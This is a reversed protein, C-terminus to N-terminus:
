EKVIRDRAIVNEGNVIRCMYVGQPLSSIDVRANTSSIEQSLLLRGAVDHFEITTRGEPLSNLLINLEDNAPNPYVYIALPEADTSEESVATTSKSNMPADIDFDIDTEEDRCIGYFFCLVSNAYASSVGTNREVIVQLEAIEDETLQAYNRGDTYVAERLSQYQCFNDYEALEDATLAFRQPIMALEQRALAYEGMEFYSNVLSYKATTTNMRNYWGNLSECDFVITDQLIADINRNAIEAMTRRLSILTDQMLRATAVIDADGEDFNELLFDYGAADYDAFRSEYIQQLSEYLTIDDNSSSNNSNSMLLPLLTCLTSTCSNATINAVTTINSSTSAPYYLNTTLADGSHYYTVPNCYNSSIINYGGSTFKNGASKSSSGQVYSNAGWVHIDATYSLFQNCLFQLGPNGMSLIGYGLKSFTNRYITNDDNGSDLAWVGINIFGSPASTNTSFFENGEAKYGSSGSMGLGVNINTGFIDSSPLEVYNETFMFNNVASVTTAIGCSEFTSRSASFSYDTGSNSSNIGAAINQFMSSTSFTPCFCDNANYVVPCYEELKYGTNISKIGIGTAFPTTCMDKFQCGSFKLGNVHNMEVFNDFTINNASFLNYDDVIFDCLSFRSQNANEITSSVYANYEQFFASRANNHFTTNSCKVIGGSTNYDSGDWVCIANKANEISSYNKTELTGQYQAYQLQNKNGVVYIGDWMKNSCLNTITGGNVVLKGNPRIVIKAEPSCRVTSSITVTSGSSVTFTGAIVSNSVLTMTGSSTYNNYCTYYGSTVNVNKTKTVTYGDHTINAKVWGTGYGVPRVTVSSTGQGSVIEINNSTTWTLTTGTPLTSSSLSYTYTNCSSASTNGNVTYNYFYAQMVAAHADVLGYGMENNWTGNPHDSSITYNYLGNTENIDRIKQATSEIINRVQQGTLNPNVSLMLAAVGAVHPAAMSTGSMYEYTDTVDWGVICSSSYIDVGPAVVDLLNGYASISDRQGFSSISGVTLIEPRYDAPYDMTPAHNGSSFVVICGNGNRGNTIANDIADELLIDHMYPYVYANHGQDGWSNNIIDANNLVAQNIGIALEYSLTQSLYFPNSINMACVNPAIGAVGLNNHNAFIIGAVHTAHEGEQSAPTSQTKTNYSYIFQNNSFDEHNEKVGQDFVAVKVNSIGKTISWAGCANIQYTSNANIGWQNSYFPDSVCNVSYRFIFGYDVKDFLGSEHLVNAKTIVTTNSGQLSELEYWNNCYPLKRVVNCNLSDALHKLLFTDSEQFLKVYFHNSCMISNGVVPEVSNVSINRRLDSTVEDYNANNCIEFVKANKDEIGFSKSVDRIDKTEILPDELLKESYVVIFKKNIPIDIKTNNYYYFCDGKQSFGCVSYLAVAFLIFLSKKMM